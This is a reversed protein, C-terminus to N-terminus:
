NRSIPHLILLGKEHDWIYFQQVTGKTSAHVGDYTQHAIVVGAAQGDSGDRLSAVSGRVSLLRKPDGSQPLFWIETEVNYAHEENSTVIFIENIGGFLRGTECRELGMLIDHTMRLRGDTAIFRVRMGVEGENDSDHHLFASVVIRWQNGSQIYRVPAETRPVFRQEAPLYQGIALNRGPPTLDILRVTGEQVILNQCYVRCTSDISTQVAANSVLVIFSVLVKKM